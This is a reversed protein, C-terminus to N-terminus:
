KWESIKIRGKVLRFTSMPCLVFNLFVYLRAVCSLQPCLDCGIKFEKLIVHVVVDFRHQFENASM